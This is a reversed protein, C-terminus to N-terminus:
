AANRGYNPFTFGKERAASNIKPASLNGNKDQLDTAEVGKGALFQVAANVDTVSEVPTIGGTEGSGGGSTSEGNPDADSDGSGGSPKADAQQAAQQAEEDVGTVEAFATGYAPHGKLHSGQEDTVVTPSSGLRVRPIERYHVFTDGGRGQVTERVSGFIVAYSDTNGITKFKRKAM